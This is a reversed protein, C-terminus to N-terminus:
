RSTRHLLMTEKMNHSGISAQNLMSRPLFSVEAIAWTTRVEDVVSVPSKVVLRATLAHRLVVEFLSTVSRLM